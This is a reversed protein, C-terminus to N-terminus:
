VINLDTRKSNLIHFVNQEIKQVDDTIRQSALQTDDINDHKDSDNALVNARMQHLKALSISLKNKDYLEILYVGEKITINKIGNFLHRNMKITSIENFEVFLRGDIMHFDKVFNLYNANDYVTYLSNLLDDITRTQKSITRSILLENIQTLLEKFEQKKKWKEIARKILVDDVITGGSNKYADITNNGNLINLLFNRQLETCRAIGVSIADCLRSKDM